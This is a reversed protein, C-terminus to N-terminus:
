VQSKESKEENWLDTFMSMLEKASEMTSVLEQAQSFSQRLNTPLSQEM